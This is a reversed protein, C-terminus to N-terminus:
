RIYALGRPCVCFGYVNTEHLDPTLFQIDYRLFSIWLRTGIIWPPDFKSMKLGIKKYVHFQVKTVVGVM